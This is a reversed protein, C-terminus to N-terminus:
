KSNARMCHGTFFTKSSYPMKIQNGLLYAINEAQPDIRRGCLTMIGNARGGVDFSRCVHEM